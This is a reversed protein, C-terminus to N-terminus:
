PQNMPKIGAERELFVLTDKVLKRRKIFFFILPLLGLLPFYFLIMAQKSDLAFYLIGPVITINFISIFFLLAFIWGPSIVLDIISSNDYQPLINLTNTAQKRSQFGGKVYAVEVTDFVIKQSDSSKKRYYIGTKKAKFAEQVQEVTSLIDGIKQIFDSPNQPAILKRKVTLM